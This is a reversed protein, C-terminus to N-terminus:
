LRAELLRVLYVFRLAPPGFARPAHTWLDLNVEDRKLVDDYNNFYNWLKQVLQNPNSM